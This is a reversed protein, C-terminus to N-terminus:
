IGTNLGGLVKYLYDQDYACKKRKSAIGMKCSKEQKLLNIGIHRAVNINEAANGARIRSEDERFGIDLVWHLSNEIGWHSRKSRGYKEATMGATSYISYSITKVTKDKEIVSAVCAGIGRLGAWGRHEQLLWDIDDSVYYERTEIRGHDNDTEKYYMEEQELDKKSRTFIENEFYLSIDEKLAPQNGKVQLIYDADKEIIKEAIDKQTGMADITVICGKICLLDLLEPIAKIENTKEDVRLQGLVLASECAWASVVHIPRQGGAGERSRRVTKGDISVVGSVTGAVACTWQLFAEHFKEPDIMQFVRNITDHSPIGGPLELFQRLWEKKSSAWDEIENWTDMGSLVATITIVIIDLFKHKQNYPARPDPVERMCGILSIDKEKGM